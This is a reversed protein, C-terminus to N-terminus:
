QNLVNSTKSTFIQHDLRIMLELPHDGSKWLNHLDDRVHVVSIPYHGANKSGFKTVQDYLNSEAQEINSELAFLWQKHLIDEVKQTILDEKNDNQEKQGLQQHMDEISDSSTQIGLQGCINM